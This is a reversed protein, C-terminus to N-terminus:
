QIYCVCYKVMVTKSAKVNQFYEFHSCTIVKELSSLKFAHMVVCAIHIVRVAFVSLHIFHEVCSNCKRSCGEPLRLAGWSAMGTM